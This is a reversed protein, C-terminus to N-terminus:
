ARLRGEPSPPTRCPPTMFGCRCRVAPVDENAGPGAVTTLAQCSDSPAPRGGARVTSALRHGEPRGRRRPSPRGTGAHAGAHQCINGTNGSCLTEPQGLGMILHSGRAWPVRGGNGHLVSTKRTGLGVALLNKNTKKFNEGWYCSKGGGARSGGSVHSAARVMPCM